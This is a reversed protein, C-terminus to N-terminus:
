FKEKTWWQEKDNPLISNLTKSLDDAEKLYKESKKMAAFSKIIAKQEMQSRFHEIEHSVAQRILEARSVGLRKAVEKSAKALADPLVVSLTTM